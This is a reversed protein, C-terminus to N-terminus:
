PCCSLSAWQLYSLNYATFATRNGHHSPTTIYQMLILCLWPCVIHGAKAYAGLLANWNAITLQIDHEATKADFCEQAKVPQKARAYADVLNTLSHSDPTRGHQVLLDFTESAKSALGARAQM